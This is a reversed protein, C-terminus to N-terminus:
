AAGQGCTDRPLCSVMGVPTCKNRKNIASHATTLETSESSFGTNVVLRRRLSLLVGFVHEGALQYNCFKGVVPLRGVSWAIPSPSIAVSVVDGAM